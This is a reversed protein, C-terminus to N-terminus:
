TAVPDAHFFAFPTGFRIVGAGEVRGGAVALRAASGDDAYDTEIAVDSRLAAAVGLADLACNAWYRRRGAHVVFATPVNSFPHAMLITEGDRDLVLAHRAALSRFAARAEAVSLGLAAASAAANPATGRAVFRDYVFIKVKRLTADTTTNDM